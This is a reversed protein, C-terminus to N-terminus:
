SSRSKATIPERWARTLEAAWAAAEPTLLPDCPTGAYDVTGRRDPGGDYARNFVVQLDLIVEAEDETM